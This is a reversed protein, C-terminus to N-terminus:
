PHRTFETDSHGSSLALRRIEPGTEDCIDLRRAAPLKAFDVLYSPLCGYRMM